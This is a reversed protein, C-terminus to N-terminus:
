KKLPAEFAGPTPNETNRPQGFYDKNVELMVGDVKRHHPKTVTGWPNDTLRFDGSAYSTFPVTTPDVIVSAADNGTDKQYAKLTAHIQGADASRLFGTNTEILAFVNHDSQVLRYKEQDGQANMYYMFFGGKPRYVLNNQYFTKGRYQWLCSFGESGRQAQRRLYEPTLILDYIFTNHVYRNDGGGGHYDAITTNILVNNNVFLTNPGTGGGPTKFFTCNRLTNREVKFTRDQYEPENRRFGLDFAADASPRLWNDVVTNFLLGNSPAHILIGDQNRRKDDDETNDHIYCNQIVQWGPVRPHKIHM